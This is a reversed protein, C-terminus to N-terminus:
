MPPQIDVPVDFDFYDIIINEVSSKIEARVVRGSETLWVDVSDIQAQEIVGDGIVRSHQVKVGNLTAVEIDEVIGNGFLMAWYDTTVGAVGLENNSDVLVEQWSDGVDRMWGQSGITILESNADQLFLTGQVKLNNPDSLDAHAEFIVHTAATETTTSEMRTAVFRLTEMALGIRGALQAAASRPPESTMMSSPADSPVTVKPVVPQDTSEAGCGSFLVFTAVM